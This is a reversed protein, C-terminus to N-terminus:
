CAADLKAFRTILLCRRAKCIENNALLCSTSTTIATKSICLAAIRVVVDRIANKSLVKESKQLMM